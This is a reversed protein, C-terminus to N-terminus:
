CIMRPSLNPKPPWIYQVQKLLCSVYCLTSKLVHKGQIGFSDTVSSAMARNFVTYEYVGPFDGTVVLTSTYVPSLRDTQLEGSILRISINSPGGGVVESNRTIEVGNRTWTYNTPPGGRTMGALIFLNSRFPTTTRLSVTNSTIAGQGPPYSFCM